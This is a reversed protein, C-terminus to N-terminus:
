CLYRLSLSCPLNTTQMNQCVNNSSTGYWVSFSTSSPPGSNCVQIMTSLISLDSAPISTPFVAPTGFDNFFSCRSSAAVWDQALSTVLFYSGIKYDCTFGGFVGLLICSLFLFALTTFLRCNM